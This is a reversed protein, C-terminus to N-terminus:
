FEEISGTIRLFMAELFEEAEVQAVGMVATHVAVSRRQGHLAGEQLLAM